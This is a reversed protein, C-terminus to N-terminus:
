GGAGLGGWVTGAAPQWSDFVGVRRVGCAAITPPELGSSGAPSGLQIWALRFDFFTLSIM